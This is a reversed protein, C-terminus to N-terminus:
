LLWVQENSPPSGISKDITYIQIYTSLYKQKENCLVNGKKRGSYEIGWQIDGVQAEQLHQPWRWVWLTFNQGFQVMVKQGGWADNWQSM